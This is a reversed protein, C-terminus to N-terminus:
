LIFNTFTLKLKKFMIYTIKKLGSLDYRIFESETEGRGPVGHRDTHGGKRGGSGRGIM